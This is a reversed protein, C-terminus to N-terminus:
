NGDPLWNTAYLRGVRHTLLVLRRLALPISTSQSYEPSTEAGYSVEVKPRAAGASYDTKRAAFGGHRRLREVRPRLSGGADDVGLVPPAARERLDPHALDSSIPSPWTLYQLHLRANGDRYWGSSSGFVPLSQTSCSFNCMQRPIAGALRASMAASPSAVGSSRAAAPADHMRSAATLNLRDIAFSGSQLAAPHSAM